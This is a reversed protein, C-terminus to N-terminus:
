RLAQFWAEIADMMFPGSPSRHQVIGEADILYLREPSGSYLKSVTNNMDDIAVPMTIARDRICDAAIAARAEINTPQEYVCRQDHNIELQWGDEPHAESIYVLLFAHKDSLETYIDNFRETQGRYIPCTYSGFLLAMSQGRYDELSVTEGTLGRATDFRQASFVPAKEGVKPAAAEIPARESALQQMYDDPPLEIVQMFADIEPELTWSNNSM